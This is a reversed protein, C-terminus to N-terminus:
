VSLMPTFELRTLVSMKVVIKYSIGSLIVIIFEHSDDVLLPVQLLQFMTTM